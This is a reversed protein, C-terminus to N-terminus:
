RREVIEGLAQGALEESADLAIDGLSVVGVLRGADDCVLLRRVQAEGMQRATEVVPQRAACLHRARSMIDAVALDVGPGLEPLVRIALDRDTVVGVPRGDVCIPLYGIDRAKMLAAAARVSTQPGVTTCHRRMIRETVLAVERAMRHM